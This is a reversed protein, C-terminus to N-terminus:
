MLLRERCLDVIEIFLPGTIRPALCADMCNRTVLASFSFLGPM